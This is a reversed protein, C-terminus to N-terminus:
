SVARRRLVQSVDLAEVIYSKIETGGDDKPPTWHVVCNDYFVDTVTCSEPPDPKDAFTSSQKNNSNNITM